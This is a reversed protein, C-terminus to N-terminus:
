HNEREQRMERKIKRAYEVGCGVRDAAQKPTAGSSLLSRLRKKKPEARERRAQGSKKGGEIRRRRTDAGLAADKGALIKLGEEPGLSVCRRLASLYSLKELWVGPAFPPGKPGQCRAIVGEESDVSDIFRLVDDHSFGCTDLFWDRCDRFRVLNPEPVWSPPWGLVGDYDHDRALSLKRQREKELIARAQEIQKETAM